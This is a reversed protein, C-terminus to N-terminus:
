RGGGWAKVLIGDFLKESNLLGGVNKIDSSLQVAMHDLAEPLLTSLDNV